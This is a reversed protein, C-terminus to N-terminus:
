CLRHGSLCTRPLIRKRGMHSGAPTRKNSFAFRSCSRKLRNWPGGSGRPQRPVPPSWFACWSSSLSKPSEEEHAGPRRLAAVSLASAAPWQASVAPPVADHANLGPEILTVDTQRGQSRGGLEGHGVRQHARSCVDAAGNRVRHHGDHYLEDTDSRVQLSLCRWSVAHVLIPTRGLITPPRPASSASASVTVHAASQTLSRARACHCASAAACTCWISCGYGIARSSACAKAGM